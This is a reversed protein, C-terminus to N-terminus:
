LGLAPSIQRFNPDDLKATWIEGEGKRWGTVRRGGSFTVPGGGLATYFSGSDRADFRLTENLFYTGPHIVVAVRHIVLENQGDSQTVVLSPGAAAAPAPSPATVSLSVATDGQPGTTDGCAGVAVAIMAIVTARMRM